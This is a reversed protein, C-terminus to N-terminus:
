IIGRSVTPSFEGFYKTEAQIRAMKAEVFTDYRGVNIEKRNVMIRAQYKGSPVQRVGPYGSTNNIKKKINKGNQATTCVRLNCKRNDLTNGNIHDVKVDDDKKLGLVFRHLRANHGGNVNAVLYGNGDVCWTYKFCKEIDEVDLLFGIGKATKCKAINGTIEYTNKSKRGLLEVTGHHYLRLWHKNCYYKGDFSGSSKEGCVICYHAEKPKRNPHKKYAYRQKTERTAIIKCEPCYKQQSSNPIIEVGCRVCNRPPFKKKVM